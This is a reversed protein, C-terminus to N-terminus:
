RRRYGKTLADALQSSYIKVPKGAPNIVPVLTDTGAVANTETGAGTFPSPRPMPIMVGASLAEQPRPAPIMTGKAVMEPEWFSNLGGPTGMFGWSAPRPMTPVETPVAAATSENPSLSLIHKVIESNKAVSNLKDLDQLVKRATMRVHQTVTGRIPDIALPIDYVQEPVASAVLPKTQLTQKNVATIGGGPQDYTIWPSSARSPIGGQKAILPSLFEAEASAAAEAPSEQPFTIGREDAVASNLRNYRLRAQYGEIAQNWIDEESMRGSANLRNQRLIAAQEQLLAEEGPSRLNNPM